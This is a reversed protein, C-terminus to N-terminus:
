LMFGLTHAHSSYSVWWRRAGLLGWRWWRCCCCHWHFCNGHSGVPLGHQRQQRLASIRHISDSFSVSYTFHLLRANIIPVVPLNWTDMRDKSEKVQHLWKYLRPPSAGGVEMKTTPLWSFLLSMCVWVQLCMLFIGSISHFNFSYVSFIYLLLTVYAMRQTETLSHTKGGQSALQGLDSHSASTQSLLDEPPGFRFRTSLGAVQPSSLFGCFCVLTVFFLWKMYFSASKYGSLWPNWEIHSLCGTHMKSYLRLLVMQATHSWWHPLVPFWETMMMLSLSSFCVLQQNISKFWKGAVYLECSQIVTKNFM